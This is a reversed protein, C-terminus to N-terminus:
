TVGNLAAITELAKRCDRSNDYPGYTSCGTSGDNIELWRPYVRGIWGSSTATAELIRNSTIARWKITARRHKTRSSWKIRTTM